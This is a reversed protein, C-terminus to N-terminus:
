KVPSSINEAPNKPLIELFDLLPPEMLKLLIYNDPNEEPKFFGLFIDDSPFLRDTPLPKLAASKGIRRFKEPPPLQTASDCQVPIANASVSQSRSHDAMCATPHDSPPRSASYMSLPGSSEVNPLMDISLFPSQKRSNFQWSGVSCGDLTRFLAVSPPTM